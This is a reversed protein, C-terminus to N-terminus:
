LDTAYLTIWGRFMLTIFRLAWREFQSRSLGVGLLLRREHGGCLKASTLSGACSLLCRQAGEGHLVERPDERAEGERVGGQRLGDAERGEDGAEEEAQDHHDRPHRVERVGEAAGPDAVGPCRLGRGEADGPGEGRQERAEHGEDGEGYSRSFFEFTHSPFLVLRLRDSISSGGM